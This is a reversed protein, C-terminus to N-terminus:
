KKKKSPRAEFRRLPTDTHTAMGGRARGRTERYNLRPTHRLTMNHGQFVSDTVETDQTALSQEPQDVEGALLDTESPAESLPPATPSFEGGLGDEM